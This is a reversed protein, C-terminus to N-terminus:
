CGKGKSVEKKALIEYTRISLSKNASLVCACCATLQEIGSVIWVSNWM